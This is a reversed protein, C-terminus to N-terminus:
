DFVFPKTRTKNSGVEMELQDAAKAREEAEQILM